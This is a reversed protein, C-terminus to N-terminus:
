FAERIGFYIGPIQGGFAFDIRANIRERPLVLYRIGIGMSPKVTKEFQSFSPAVDGLGIFGVLGWREKFPIKERSDNWESRVLPLRYEMQAAYLSNDRYRGEYYGRMIMKGGLLAMAEFSPNGWIDTLLLQVALVHKHFPHFYKRIDIDLRTFDFESGSWPEYNALKVDGYFGKSPNLANDRSDYRLNINFGSIVSGTNGPIVGPQSLLGNDEVSVIDSNFYRYGLGIYFYKAVLRLYTISAEVTQTTYIEEDSKLTENGIGFFLLPFHFWEALIFVENENSNSYYSLSLKAKFQNNLTYSLPVRISSLQTEPTVGKKRFLFVPSVGFRFSTEPSVSIVPLVYWKRVFEGEETQLSDVEKALNQLPKQAFSGSYSLLIAIGVLFASLLNQKYVIGYM